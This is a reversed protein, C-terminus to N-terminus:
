FLDKEEQVLHERWTLALIELDESYDTREGDEDYPLRELVEIRFNAKGHVRWARQLERNPHMGASLKFKSSNIASKLDQSGQVLCRGDAQSCICFVGTEPKSLKYQRQLEKRRDM